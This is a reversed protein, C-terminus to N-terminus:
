SVSMIRKNGEQTCAVFFTVAIQAVQIADPVSLGRRIDAADLGKTKKAAAAAFLNLAQTNTMNFTNNRTVIDRDMCEAYERSTLARFDYELEDFDKDDAHIPAALKLKGRSFLEIPDKTEIAEADPKKEEAAQEAANVNKKEESM